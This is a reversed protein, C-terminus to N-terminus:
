PQDKPLHALHEGRQIAQSILVLADMPVPGPFGALLWAVIQARESVTAPAPLLALAATLAAEIDDRYLMRPWGHDFGISNKWREDLAHVAAKVMEEGVTVPRVPSAREASLRRLLNVVWKCNGEEDPERTFSSIAAEVETDTVPARRGAHWDAMEAVHETPRVPSAPLARIAAAIDRAMTHTGTWGDAVRAAAERSVLDSPSTM